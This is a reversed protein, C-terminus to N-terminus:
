FSLLARLRTNITTVKVLKKSKIILEELDIQECEVLPKNFNKIAAIFENKYYDKTAPRLNRLYCDRNIVEFFEENNIRKIEM